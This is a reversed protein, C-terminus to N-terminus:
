VCTTECTNSRTPCNTPIIFPVHNPNLPVTLRMGSICISDMPIIVGGIVLKDFDMLRDNTRYLQPVVYDIWGEKMWKRTDAYLEYYTELAMHTQVKRIIGKIQGYALPASALNLM